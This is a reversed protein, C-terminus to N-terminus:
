RCVKSNLYAPPAKMGAALLLIHTSVQYPPVIIYAPNFCCNFANFLASTLVYLKKIYQACIWINSIHLVM